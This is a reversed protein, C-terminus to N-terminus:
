FWSRICQGLQLDYGAQMKDKHEAICLMLTTNALERTGPKKQMGVLSMQAVTTNKTLTAKDVPHLQTNQSNGSLKKLASCRTYQSSKSLVPRNFAFQHRFHHATVAGNMYAHATVPGAQM